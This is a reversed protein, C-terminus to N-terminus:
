QTSLRRRDLSYTLRFRIPSWGAPSLAQPSPNVQVKAALTAPHIPLFGSAVSRALLSRLHPALAQAALAVATGRLLLHLRTEKRQLWRGDAVRSM